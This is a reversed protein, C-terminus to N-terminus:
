QRSHWRRVPATILLWTRKRRSCTVKAPLAVAHIRVASLPLPGSRENRDSMAAVSEMIAYKSSYQREEINGQRDEFIDLNKLTAPKMAPKPPRRCNGYGAKTFASCPAHNSEPQSRGKHQRRTGSHLPSQHAIQDAVVGLASFQKALRSLGVAHSFTKTNTARNAAASNMSIAWIPIAVVIL